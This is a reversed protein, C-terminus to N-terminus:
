QPAEPQGPRLQVQLTDIGPPACPLPVRPLERVLCASFKMRASTQVEGFVEVNTMTGDPELSMAVTPTFEGDPSAEDLCTDLVFASTIREIWVDTGRQLPAWHMASTTFAGTDTATVRLRRGRSGEAFRVPELGACLCDADSPRARHDDSTAECREIRGSTGIALRVTWEFRPKPDPHACRDVDAQQELLSRDPEASWPGISGVVGFMIPPPHSSIIGGGVGGIFADSPRFRAVTWARPDTPTRITGSVYGFYAGDDTEGDDDEPPEVMVQLVCGDYCTALVDATAAASLYRDILEDHTLPSRCRRDDELVLRGIAAADEIRRLEDLSAVPHRRRKLLSAVKRRIRLKEDAFLVVPTSDTTPMVVISEASFPSKLPSREQLAPPDRVTVPAPSSEPSVADPEDHAMQPTKAPSPSSAIPAVSEESPPNTRARCGGTFCVAAVVPHLWRLRAAM